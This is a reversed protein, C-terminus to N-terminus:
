GSMLGQCAERAKKEEAALEERVAALEKAVEDSEPQLKHAAVLDDRAAELKGAIRRAIGRRFQAKASRLNGRNRFFYQFKGSM